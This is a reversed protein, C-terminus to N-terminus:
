GWSWKKFYEIVNIETHSLRLVLLVIGIIMAASLRCLLLLVHPRQGVVTCLMM